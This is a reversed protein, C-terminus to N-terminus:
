TEKLRNKARHQVSAVSDRLSLTLKQPLWFPPSQAVKSELVGLHPPRAKRLTAVSGPSERAHQKCSHYLHNVESDISCVSLCAPNVTPWSSPDPTRIRGRFRKRQGKVFGPEM